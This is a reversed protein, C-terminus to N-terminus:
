RVVTVGGREEYIRKNNIDTGKFTIVYAYTGQPVAAGAQDTTDWQFAKDRSQFVLDGWRNYIIIQFEGVYENAFVNFTQNQANSSSPRVANPAFVKPKCDELVTTSVTYECGAARLVVSYNGPENATVTRTTATTGNPLTWLYSGFSGPDLLVARESEVGTSCIFYTDQITPQFVEQVSLDRVIVIEDCNGVGQDSLRFTYADTSTINWELINETPDTTPIENGASNTLTFFFNGSGGSVNATLLVTGDQCNTESLLEANVAEYIDTIAISLSDACSINNNPYVVVTYTGAQNVSISQGQAGNSWAFNFDAPDGTTLIATLQNGGDCDILNEITNIDATESINVTVVATTPCNTGDDATITFTTSSTIDNVNAPAPSYAFSVGAATIGQLYTELDFAGCVFINPDPNFAVSDTPTIIFNAAATCGTGGNDIVEISYDGPAVNPITFPQVNATGAQVQTNSNDSITWNFDAVLTGTNAVLSVEINQLAPPCNTTTQNVSVTFDTNTLPVSLIATCSTLNDSITINYTGAALATAALTNAVVATPGSWSIQYDGSGGSPAVTIAGDATTCSPNTSSTISLLPTENVTIEVEDVAFCNPEVPDPIEVRVTYIGIVSTPVTFTRGGASQQVGDIYWNYISANVNADLILNDNQCVVQDGGLDVNFPPGVFIEAISTCGNASTVTVTYNGEATVVITQTTEGTSWIYTHGPADVIDTGLTLTDGCFTRPSIVATVDPSAFIEINEVLLNDYGCENTIRLVVEYRGPNLQIDLTDNQQNSTYVSATSDIPTITWNFVDFTTTGTGSLIVPDASCAAIVNISPEQEPTAINQIFNPLGLRSTRGALNFPQVSGALNDSQTPLFRNDPSGITFVDPSNNAAIYLQGDPGTQIAGAEFALDAVTVSDPNSIDGILYDDNVPIQILQSTGGASRLSVYLFNTSPSFELGYVTGGFNVDLLAYEYGGISDRRIFDVFAGGENYSHAIKDGGAAYKLYGVTSEATLFTAGQSVYDPSNIGEANVDFSRYNNTGLEHTLVTTNATGVAAIKELNQAYIKRNKLVVDGLGNNLKLDVLAVKFGKNLSNEDESLFIYYLSPDTGHAVAIVGQSADSSGGLDTGNAMEQHESDWIIEGNTYFLLDGNDDSVTACGEEALIAGDTVAQPGADGNFDIGAGEGFYWFNALQKGEEYLTLTFTATVTCAGVTVAASYTGSQLFTATGDGNDTFKTPDPNIWVVQDPDSGDGLTPGYNQLPLECVTSDQLQVQSDFIDVTVVTSDILINGGANVFLKVNYSGAAAFNVIPSIADSTQGDGFDWFVSSIDELADYQAFFSIPNNQCIATNLQTDYWDFDVLADILQPPASQPLNQANGFDAGNFLDWQINLSDPISDAFQIRSLFSSAGNNYLFYLLGDPGNQLASAENITRNLINETSLSDPNFQFISGENTTTNNRSYYLNAGGVSWEIDTIQQNVAGTNTLLTENVFNASSPSDGLLDLLIINKPASGVNESSLALQVSDQGITRFSVNNLAYSISFTHSLAPTAALTGGNQIQSIKLQNDILTQYLLYYTDGIRLSQVFPALNTIGTAIPASSVEGFTGANLDVNVYQLDGANTIFYVHMLEDNAIPSPSITVGNQITSNGTINGGPMIQHDKGYITTGDTYFLLEGNTARAAVAAANVGFPTAQNSIIDAARGNSKSFQIARNNDGYYWFSESFEQALLTQGFLFSLLLFYKFISSSM